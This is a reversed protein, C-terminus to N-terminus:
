GNPEAKRTLTHMRDEWARADDVTIVVKRGLHVERPGRGTHRLRYYFSRSLHYAGCFEDITFVRRSDTDIVAPKSGPRAGTTPPVSAPDTEEQM